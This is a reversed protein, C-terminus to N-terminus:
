EEGQAPAPPTTATLRRVNDLTMGGGPCRHRGSLYDKNHSALRDGYVGKTHVGRGCIPCTILHSM